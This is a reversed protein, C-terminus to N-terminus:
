CPPNLPSSVQQIWDGFFVRACGKIFLKKRPFSSTDHSVTSLSVGFFSIGIKEPQRWVDRHYNGVWTGWKSIFHVTVQGRLLCLFHNWGRTAPLRDHSRLRCNSLQTLSSQIVNSVAITPCHTAGPTPLLKRYPDIPCAHYVAVMGFENADLAWNTRGDLLPWRTNM